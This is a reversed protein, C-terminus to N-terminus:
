SSYALLDEDNAKSSAKLHTFSIKMQSTFIGERILLIM